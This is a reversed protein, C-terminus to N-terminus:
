NRFTVRTSLSETLVRGKVNRSGTLNIDITSSSAGLNFSISAINNALITSSIVTTADSGLISRVLQGSAVSFEIYNNATTGDGWTLVGNTDFGVPVRFVISNSNVLPLSNIRSRNSSYLERSMKGLGTRIENEIYQRETNEEFSGSGVTLVNLIMISMISVLALSIMTEVLTFAKKM